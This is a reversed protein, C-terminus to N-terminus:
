IRRLSRRLHTLRLKPDAQWQSHIELRIHAKPPFAKSIRINAM